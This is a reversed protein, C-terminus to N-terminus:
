ASSGEAEQKARAREAKKRASYVAWPETLATETHRGTGGSPLFKVYRQRVTRIYSENCGVIAAIERCSRTGDDLKDIQAKVSGPPRRTM